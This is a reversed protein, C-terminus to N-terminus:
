ELYKARKLISRAVEKAMKPLSDWSQSNNDIRGIHIEKVKAGIKIMDILIGIDVGYDKELEIQRFIETKGAIIGSLPQEFQAVDDPFLLQLLPKAVLETVRGGERKFASKVFDYNEKIIPTIMAQVIDENYIELDGDVFLVIETKCHKIGAEMAFGKGKQGCYVVEAGNNKAIKTTNDTSCNDVVIINSEIESAKIKEIVQGITAEENYAPVIVTVNKM